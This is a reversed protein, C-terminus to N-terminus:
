LLIELNLEAWSGGPRNEVRDVFDQHSLVYVLRHEGEDNNCKIIRIISNV